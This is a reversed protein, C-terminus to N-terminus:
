KKNILLQLEEEYVPLKSVAIPDTVEGENIAKIKNQLDLILEEDTKKPLENAQLQQIMEESRQMNLEYNPDTYGEAQIPFVTQNGSPNELSSNSVNSEEDVKYELYRGGNVNAVSDSVLETNGPSQEISVSSNKKSNLGKLLIDTSRPNVTGQATSLIFSSHIFIVFLLLKKM